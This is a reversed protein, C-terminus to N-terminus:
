IAGGGTTRPKKYTLSAHDPSPDNVKSVRGTERMRLDAEQWSPLTIEDQQWHAVSAEDCWRMLHPMAAKHPGSTMYLRMSEQDTWSTMTWFTFNQDPLLKGSLFGPAQKVQRNARIAHLAFPPMYLLSRIRLRTLSVFIM